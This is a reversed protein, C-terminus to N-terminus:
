FTQTSLCAPEAMERPSPIGTHLDDVWLVNHLTVKSGLRLDDEELSFARLRLGGELTNRRPKHPQMRYMHRAPLHASRRSPDLVRDPRRIPNTTNKIGLFAWLVM